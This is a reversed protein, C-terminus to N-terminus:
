REVTKTTEGDASTERTMQVVGSGSVALYEKGTKTDKLVIASRENDYATTDSFRQYSTIEIRGSSSVPEQITEQMSANPGTQCAPTLLVGAVVLLILAIAPM